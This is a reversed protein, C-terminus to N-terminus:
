TNYPKSYCLDACCGVVSQFCIQKISLVPKTGRNQNTFGSIQREHLLFLVFCYYKKKPYSMCISSLPTRIKCHLAILGTM